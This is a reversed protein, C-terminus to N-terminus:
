SFANDPPQAAAMLRELHGGARSVTLPGTQSPVVQETELASADMLPSPHGPRRKGDGCSFSHIQTNDASGAGNQELQVM